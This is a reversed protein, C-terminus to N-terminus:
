LPSLSRSISRVPHFRQLSFLPNFLPSRILKLCAKGMLRQRLFCRRVQQELPFLNTRTAPRKQRALQTIHGTALIASHIAQSIGEGTVPHTLGAADGVRCWGDGVLHKQSFSLPIPWVSLNEPRYDITSLGSHVKGWADQLLSSADSRKMGSPMYCGLNMKDPGEPFVWTYYPLLKPHWYFALSSSWPSPTSSRLMACMHRTSSNRKEREILHHNAGSAIVVLDAHFVREKSRM